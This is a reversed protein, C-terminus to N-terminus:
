QRPWSELLCTENVESLTKTRFDEFGGQWIKSLPTELVNGYSLNLHSCGLADGYPTIVCIRRGASCGKGFGITRGLCDDLGLQMTDKHKEVIKKITNVEGRNLQQLPPKPPLLRVDSVGLGRCFYIFEDLHRVNGSHCICNIGVKIHKIGKKIYKINEVVKDFDSKHTISHIERTHGDLSFQLQYLKSKSIKDAFRDVTAGNTTLCVVLGRGAAYDVIDFLDDRILAEGGGIALMFSGGSVIDDIIKKWEATTLEKRGSNANPSQNCCPCNLQCKYTLLIHTATPFSLHTQQSYKQPDGFEVLLCNKPCFMIKGFAESRCRVKM